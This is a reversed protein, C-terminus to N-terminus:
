FAQFLNSKKTTTDEKPSTAKAAKYDYSKDAIAAAGWNALTSRTSLTVLITLNAPFAFFKCVM